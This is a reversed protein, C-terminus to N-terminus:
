VRVHPHDREEITWQIPTDEPYSCIIEMLKLFASRSGSGVYHENPRIGDMYMGTNPLLCGETDRVTNGPHCLIGTFGKVNDLELIFQGHYKHKGVRHQYDELLATYYDGDTRRTVSYTDAPIRTKGYEKTKMYGDEIIKCVYEDNVYLDSVTSGIGKGTETNYYTEDILVQQIHIMDEKPKVPPEPPASVRPPISSNKPGYPRPEDIYDSKLPRDPGKKWGEFFLIIWDYWRM